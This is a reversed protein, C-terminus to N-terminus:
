HENKLLKINKIEFVFFVNEAWKFRKNSIFSVAKIELGM